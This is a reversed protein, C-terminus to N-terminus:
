RLQLDGVRNDPSHRQVGMAINTHRDIEVDKDIGCTEGLDMALKLVHTANGPGLAAFKQAM